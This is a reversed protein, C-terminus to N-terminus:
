AQPTFSHTFSHSLPQLTPALLESLFLRHAKNYTAHEDSCEQWMELTQKHVELYLSFLSKWAQAYVGDKAAKVFVEFTFVPETDGLSPTPFALPFRWLLSSRARPNSKCVPRTGFCPREESSGARRQKSM